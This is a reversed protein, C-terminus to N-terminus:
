EATGRRAVRWTRFDLNKRPNERHCLIAPMLEWTLLCMGQKQDIALPKPDFQSERPRSRTVQNRWQRDGPCGLYPFCDKELM